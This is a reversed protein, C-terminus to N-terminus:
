CRMLTPRWADYVQCNDATPETQRGDSSQQGNGRHKFQLLTQYIRDYSDPAEQVQLQV